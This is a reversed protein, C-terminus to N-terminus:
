LYSFTSMRFKRGPFALLSKVPPAPVRRPEALSSLPFQSLGRLFKPLHEAQCIGPPNRLFNRFHHAAQVSVFIGGTNQGAQVWSEQEVLSQM